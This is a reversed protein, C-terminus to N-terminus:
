QKCIRFYATQSCRSSIIDEDNEEGGIITIVLYYKGVPHSTDETTLRVKFQGGQPNTIQGVTLPDSNPTIEKDIFPAVTEYPQKKVEFRITYNTLDLPVEGTLISFGVSKAEGQKICIVNRATLDNDTAM